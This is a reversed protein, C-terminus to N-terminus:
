QHILELIIEMQGNSYEIKCFPLAEGHRTQITENM